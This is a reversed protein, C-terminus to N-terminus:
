VIGKMYIKHLKGVVADVKMTQQAYRAQWSANKQTQTSQLNSCKNCKNHM